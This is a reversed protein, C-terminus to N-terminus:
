ACCHKPNEAYAQPTEEYVEGNQDASAPGNQCVQQLLKSVSVTGPKCQDDRDTDKYVHACEPVSVSTFLTDDCTRHQLGLM